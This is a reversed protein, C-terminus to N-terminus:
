ILVWAPYVPKLNIFNSDVAASLVATLIAMAEYGSNFSFHHSVNLSENFSNLLRFKLM